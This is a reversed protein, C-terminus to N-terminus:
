FSRHVGGDHTGDSRFEPPPQNITTGEEGEITEQTTKGYVTYPYLNEDSDYILCKSYDKPYYFRSIYDKDNEWAKPYVNNLIVSPTNLMEETITFDKGSVVEENDILIKM